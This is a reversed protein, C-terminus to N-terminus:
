YGLVIKFQDIGDTSRQVGSRNEIVSMYGSFIQFDPYSVSLLTRTTKTNNGYVPGNVTLTGSTNIVTLVNTAFNFDLVTGTWTATDLSTGQYVIEDQAYSGFGPAVILDTSVKYISGTAPFPSTSLATPTILVGLQYYTIDTPVYGGESGNFDISLMANSCGLESIPDFSHGGIPSVPVIAVANAGTTSTISVNAYTYGTGTSTVVIDTIQGNDIVPTATAGYGDGTVTINVIANAPDYGSGTNIVNIVEVDGSGLATLPTPTNAGIPVPIWATDLFKIKLGSDVTYMYKWKYSDAGQFINNTGYTGPEFYPEVTSAAGNNNWLCKFIQDYQNKVYFHQLLFGNSDKAFMDVNDLYYDYVTGSTWDIREIVPSIDNSTIKKAVFMNKYVQKIYQQDQHPTPPNLNDPWPDVRSLFAYLSAVPTTLYPPVVFVPQYYIQQVSSVKAGYTLLTQNPM